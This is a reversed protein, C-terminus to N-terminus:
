HGRRHDNAWLRLDRWDDLALRVAQIMKDLRGEACVLIDEVVEPPPTLDGYCDHWGFELVELLDLALPARDDGFAATFAPSREARREARSVAM